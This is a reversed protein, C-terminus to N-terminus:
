FGGAFRKNFADKDLKSAGIAAWADSAHEFFPAVAVIMFPDFGDHAGFAEECAAPAAKSDTGGVATVIIGDSGVPESGLPRGLSNVSDPDTVNGVNGSAFAPEVEGGDHIEIAASDDAPGHLLIELGGESELCELHGQVMTLGKRKFAEQMMGIAARLVGAGLITGEELVRGDLGAHAAFSIAVIVGGDFRKPARKFIFEELLGNKGIAFFSALGDKFGNFNSIVAHPDVARETILGRHVEFVLVVLL